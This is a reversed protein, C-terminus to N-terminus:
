RLFRAPATTRRIATLQERQDGARRQLRQLAPRDLGADAPLALLTDWLSEKMDVASELAEIEMQAAQTGRRRLPNIPDLRAVTASAIGIVRRVPPIRYGLRRILAALDRRDADVDATLRRMAPGHETSAWTRSVARFLRLGSGAALLHHVLYPALQDDDLREHGNAM